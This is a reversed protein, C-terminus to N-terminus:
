EEYNLAEQIKCANCVEQNAPEGCKCQKIENKNNKEHEKLLPLTALFSSIIGQKTGKYKQEFENLMSQIQSRYGEKAYPCETFEIVFNKLLAYLRTEKETCFYLPKVRQVFGKQGEIGSIPGLHAALGTNAKFLNMVIAQAEDDLNHGTILKTAGLNRAHKNILYRRWVGCINCPKKNLDKNIKPYAEDLTYGFEKKTTVIELRIQHEKCFKQLDKVTKERYNEIGEDILLTFLDCPFKNEQLYKKTLYLVSLSDKGGSAAVCISDNRDILRYKHITKFVKDEFYTIFHNKCLGGHQLEIVSKQLCKSCKM